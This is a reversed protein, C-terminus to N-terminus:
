YPFADAVRYVSGDDDTTTEQAFIRSQEAIVPKGAFTVSSAAVRADTYEPNTPTFKPM